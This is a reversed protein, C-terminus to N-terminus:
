RTISRWGGVNTVNKDINNCKDVRESALRYESSVTKKPLKHRYYQMSRTESAMLM